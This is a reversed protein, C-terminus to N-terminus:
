DATVEFIIGDPEHFEGTSYSKGFHTVRMREKQFAMSTFGGRLQDAFVSIEGSAPDKRLIRGDYPLTFQDKTAQGQQVAGQDLYFVHGGFRGFNNPALYPESLWRPATAIPDPGIDGDRVIFWEMEQGWFRKNPNKDDASNFSLGRVGGALLEGKHEPFFLDNGFVARTIWFTGIKSDDTILIPEAVGDAGVGYLVCNMLAHLILKGQYHAGKPGIGASSCVAAPIGGGTRGARPLIAFLELRDSGPALRHVVHDYHAGTRGPRSQCSFFYSGQWPAFEDTGRIPFMPMGRHTSGWPVVTELKGDAHLRWVAGHGLTPDFQSPRPQGGVDDVLVSGDDEVVNAFVPDFLVDGYPIVIRSSYGSEVINVPYRLDEAAM